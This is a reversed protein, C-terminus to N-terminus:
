EGTEESETEDSHVDATEAMKILMLEVTHSAEIQEPTYTNHKIWSERKKALTKVARHIAEHVQPKMFKELKMEITTQLLTAVV